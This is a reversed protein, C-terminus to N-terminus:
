GEKMVKLKGDKMGTIEGGCNELYDICEKNIRMGSVLVPVGPPYVTVTKVSIKNEGKELEVYEWGSYFAETPTVDLNGIEPIVSKKLEKNAVSLNGVIALLAKELKEFDDKANAPTAILVINESDAM